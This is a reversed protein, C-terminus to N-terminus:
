HQCARPILQVRSTPDTSESWQLVPTNAGFPEDYDLWFMERPEKQATYQADYGLYRVYEAHRKAKNLDDFFGLSIANKYPGETIVLHQPVDFRRMDSSVAEAAKESPLPPIYVLYNLTEFTRLARIQVALGYNRIRKMMQLAAKENNYPGLTYCSSAAEGGVSSSYAIQQNSPLLKLPPINTETLVIAQPASHTPVLVNVALVAVNALVMGLLAYLPLGGAM